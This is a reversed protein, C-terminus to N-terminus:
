EGGYLYDQGIKKYAEMQKKTDVEQSISESIAISEVLLKIDSGTFDAKRLDLIELLKDTLAVM